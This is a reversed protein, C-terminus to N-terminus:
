LLGAKKMRGDFDAVEDVLEECIVKMAAATLGDGLAVYSVGLAAVGDNNLFQWKALSRQCNQLLMHGLVQDPFQGVPIETVSYASFRVLPEDGNRIYVPRKGTVPDKFYLKIRDGEREDVPWGLQQCLREIRGRGNMANVANAIGVMADAFGM